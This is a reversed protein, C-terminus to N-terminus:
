ASLVRIGLGASRVETGTATTPRRGVGPITVPGAGATTTSITGAATKIRLGIRRSTTPCGCTDMPRTGYGAAMAQLNRPATSTPPPTARPTPPANSTGTATLTGATGTM